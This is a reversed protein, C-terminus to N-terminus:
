SGPGRSTSSSAGSRLWAAVQGAQLVPLRQSGNTPVFRAHSADGFIAASVARCTDADLGRFEGKSDVVSFGPTTGAVASVPVNLAVPEGSCAAIPLLM